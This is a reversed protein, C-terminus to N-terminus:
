RPVVVVADSVVKFNTLNLSFENIQAYLQTSSGGDLNLANYCDLGDHSEPQRILEALQTTSMPARHTAMIIVQNNRNICLATRENIEAKLKPIIGNVILRPGSQIAFDINASWHYLKKAIIEPKNNRILFVGWWSIAREANLIKGASIRLGLPKLETTFFGGNVAVLANHQTAFERVDAAALKVSNELTSRLQYHQLDIRFAHLQASSDFMEPYLQTYELGPALTQWVTAALSSSTASFCLLLAVYLLRRKM